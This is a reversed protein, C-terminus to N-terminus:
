GIPLIYMAEEEDDEEEDENAKFERENKGNAIMCISIEERRKEKPVISRKGSGM